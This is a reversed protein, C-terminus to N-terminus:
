LTMCNSATSQTPPWCLQWCTQPCSKWCGHFQMFLTQWHQSQQQQQAQYQYLPRQVLRTPLHVLGIRQFLLVLNGAVLTHLLSNPAKPGGACHMPQLSAGWVSPCVTSNSVHSVKNETLREACLMTCTRTQCCVTACSSGQLCNSSM